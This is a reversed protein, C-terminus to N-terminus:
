PAETSREHTLSYQGKGQGDANLPDDDVRLQESLSPQLYGHGGSCRGVDHRGHQPVHYQMAAATLHLVEDPISRDISEATHCDVFVRFLCRSVSSVHHRVAHHPCDSRYTSHLNIAPAIWNASCTRYSRVVCVTCPDVPLLRPM